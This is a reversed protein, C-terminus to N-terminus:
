IRLQVENQSLETMETDITLLKATHSEVQEKVEEYKEKDAKKTEELEALENELADIEAQLSPM